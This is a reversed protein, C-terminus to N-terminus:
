IVTERKRAEPWNENCWWKLYERWTLLEHSRAGVPPGCSCCSKEDEGIEVHCKLDLSAPAGMVGGEPYEKGLYRTFKRVTQENLIRAEQAKAALEDEIGIANQGFYWWERFWLTIALEVNGHRPRYLDKDSYSIDHYPNNFLVYEKLGSDDRGYAAKMVKEDFVVDNGYAHYNDARSNKDYQTTPEIPRDRAKSMRAFYKGKSTVEDVKGVWILRNSLSGFSNGAIGFVWNGPEMLHRFKSGCTSLTLLSSELAEPHDSRADIVDQLTEFACPANGNDIRMRYSRSVVHIVQIDYKGKVLRSFSM